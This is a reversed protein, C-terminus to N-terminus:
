AHTAELRQEATIKLVGVVRQLEPSADIAAAMDAVIRRLNRNLVKKACGSCGAKQSKDVEELVKERFQVLEPALGDLHPSELMLLPSLRPDAPADSSTLSTPPIM